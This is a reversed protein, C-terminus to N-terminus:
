GRSREVRAEDRMWAAAFLAILMAVLPVLSGALLLASLV